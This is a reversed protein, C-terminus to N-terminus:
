RLPRGADSKRVIFAGMGNSNAAPLMNGAARIM